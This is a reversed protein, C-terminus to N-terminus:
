ETATDAKRCVQMDAIGNHSCRPYSFIKDGGHPLRYCQLSKM